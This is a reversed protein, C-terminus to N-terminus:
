SELISQLHLLDKYALGKDKPNRLLYAPHYTILLPLQKPAYTQLKGRLAALSSQRQVLFQGAIRGLALLLKPKILDIQEELHTTCSAIEEPLPDRNNPPRCKLINAIYVKDRSLGISQLMANLLKGAKGVFPEGQQDEYFGPAEGIIMLDAHADGVGFVANTRTKSLGCDTCAQVKAALQGLTDISADTDEVLSDASFQTWTQIGMYDLYNLKNM